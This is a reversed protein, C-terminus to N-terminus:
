RLRRRRRRAGRPRTFQFRGRADTRWGRRPRAGRPRTFQFMTPHEDSKKPRPDRGERARSNFCKRTSKRWCARRTAGRAPAHISVQLLFSLLLLFKDRGERARSNFSPKAPASRALLSADRGERARSNFRSRNVTRGIKSPTAGRAPAHISVRTVTLASRAKKQRAGRPRTFQFRKYM